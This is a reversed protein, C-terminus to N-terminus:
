SDLSLVENLSGSRFGQMDLTVYDYGFSKFEQNIRGLVGQDLMSKMELPDVEIRALNEHHRVRFNKFGLQRLFDEAQEVQSLKTETIEIGYPFRSSLCPMAPQDWTPLNWRRSLARVERKDIGIEAFPSMVGRESAALRGPRYDKLDDKNCGDFIVKIRLKGGLNQLQEYLETKCFYCRKAPNKTYNPNEMEQTDILQHNFHYKEALEAAIARQQASVAPSVATVMHASSGLIRHTIFALYSSDVGGSFAVIVSQYGRVFEELKREKLDLSMLSIIRGCDGDRYSKM